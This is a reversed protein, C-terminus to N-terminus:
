SFSFATLGAAEECLLQETYPTSQLKNVKPLSLPRLASAPAPQGHQQGSGFSNPLKRKGLMAPRAGQGAPHPKTECESVALKQVLSDELDLGMAQGCPVSRVHHLNTSGISAGAAAQCANSAQSCPGQQMVPAPESQRQQCQMNSGCIGAAHASSSPTNISNHRCDIDSLANTSAAAPASSSGLMINGKHGGSACTPQRQQSQINCANLLAPAPASSRQQASHGYPIFPADVSNAHLGTTSYHSQKAGSQLPSGTCVGAVGSVSDDRM